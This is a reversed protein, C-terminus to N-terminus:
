AYYEDYTEGTFVFKTGSAAGFPYNAYDAKKGPLTIKSASSGSFATKNISLATSSSSKFVVEKLAPCNEFVGNGTSNSDGVQTVSSPFELSGRKGLLSCGLFAANGIITLTEPLSLTVIASESFAAWGIERLGPADFVKLNPTVALAFPGLVTVTEALRVEEANSYLFLSDGIYTVGDLVHIKKIDADYESWPAEAGALDLTPGKGSIELCYGGSDLAVVSALVVGGTGSIDYTAVPADSSRSFNYTVEDATVSLGAVDMDEYCNLTSGEMVKHDSIEVGIETYFFLELQGLRNMRINAGELAAIAEFIQRCNMDLPEDAIVKSAWGPTSASEIGCMTLADDFIAQITQPFVLMSDYAIKEAYAIADYCELQITGSSDAIKIDAPDVFFRGLPCWEDLGVISVYPRLSNWQKIEDISVNALTLNMSASAAVGIPLTDGEGVTETITMDTVIGDDSTVTLDTVDDAYSVDVKVRIPNRYLQAFAEHFADSVNYM